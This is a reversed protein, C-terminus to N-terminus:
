MKWRIETRASVLQFPGHAGDLVTESSSAEVESAGCMRAVETTYAIHMPSYWPYVYAPVGRHLIVTVGPSPNSASMKGFDYYQAGFRTIRETIDTPSTGSLIRQYVTRADYRAQAASTGSVLADFPTDLLRSLTAFLPLFPFVDYRVTALFPQRIFDRVRPDDLAAAFAELGGPVVKNVLYVFGRYPMGKIHFPSEGPACPLPSSARISSAEVDSKEENENPAPVEAERTEMRTEAETVAKKISPPSPSTATATTASARDVFDRELPQTTTADAFPMLARAFARVSSYRKEPDRQMARLLVDDLAEPIRANIHSPPRALENRIREILAYVGDAAFPPEGAIAEYLIAALSYQDSAPSSNRVGRTQEPAMYLLTGAVLETATLSSTSEAGAIKSLGFDVLKPVVDDRMDRALVINAPKLDRHLVGADHAQALASAIPLVIALAHEVTLLGLDGLLARLDTGSLFEMVLYPVGAEAGVDLVIVTNPHRLKAAVRGERLFREQVQEDDALHEHLIKMAVPKGLAVHTAEFVSATAGHGILRVIEYAGIRAGRLAESRAVFAGKGM